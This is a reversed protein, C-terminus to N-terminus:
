TIYFLLKTVKQIHKCKLLLPNKQVMKFNFGTKYANCVQDTTHNKLFEDIEAKLIDVADVNTFLKERCVLQREGYRNKWNDLWGFSAKLKIGAEVM